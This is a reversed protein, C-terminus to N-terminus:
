LMYGDDVISSCAIIVSESRESVYLIDDILIPDIIINEDESAIIEEEIWELVEHFHKFFSASYCKM